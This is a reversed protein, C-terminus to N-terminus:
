ELRLTPETDRDGLSVYVSGYTNDARPFSETHEIGDDRTIQTERSSREWRNPLSLSAKEHIQILGSTRSANCCFFVIVDDNSEQLITIKGQDGLFQRARSAFERELQGTTRRQRVTPDM